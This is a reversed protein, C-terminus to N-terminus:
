GTDAGRAGGELKRADRRILRRGPGGNRSRFARWYSTAIFVRNSGHLSSMLIISSAKPSITFGIARRRLYSCCFSGVAVDYRWSARPFDWFILRKGFRGNTGAGVAKLM